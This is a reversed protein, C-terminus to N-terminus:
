PVPNTQPPELVTEEETFRVFEGDYVNDGAAKVLDEDSARELVQATIKLEKKEPEYLGHLKAIEKYAMIIEAATTALRIADEFGRTIDDRTYV